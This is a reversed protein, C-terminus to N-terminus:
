LLIYKINEGEKKAPSIPSPYDALHQEVRDVDGMTENYDVVVKPKEYGSM